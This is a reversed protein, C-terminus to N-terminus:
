YNMEPVSDISFSSLDPTTQQRPFHDLIVMPQSFDRTVDMSASHNRKTSELIGSIRWPPNM